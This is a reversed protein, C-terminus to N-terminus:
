CFWLACALLNLGQGAVPHLTHAVNGLLVLGPRAQERAESLSLPYVHRAGIGTFRGLESGFRQQLRGLLEETGLNSYHESEGRPLTWVLAGRQLGEFAPLPLIALPGHRTFREYATGGHAHEFSVNAVLASQEYHTIQQDIGLWECARSRGGEALVVLRTDVEYKEQQAQLEIHMGTATPHLGALRAPCLFEIAPCSQLENTLVKGMARNEAVYGLAEVGQEENALDVSGLHGRDSIRIRTIPTVNAKLANWLGIGDLIRSSGFSLATSRDDFSPQQNDNDALPSAEVVLISYGEHRAACAFTAGVLGGGIVVIDYAPGPAVIQM